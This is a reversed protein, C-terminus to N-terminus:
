LVQLYDVRIEPLRIFTYLKIIEATLTIYQVGSSITLGGYGETYDSFDIDNELKIYCPNESTTEMMGELAIFDEATSVIYPNESTGKGIM